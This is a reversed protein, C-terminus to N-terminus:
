RVSALRSDLATSDRDAVMLAAVSNRTNERGHSHGYWDRMYEIVEHM